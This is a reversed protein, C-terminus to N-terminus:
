ISAANYQAKRHLIPRPPLMPHRQQVLYECGLRQQLNDKHQSGRNNHFRNTRVVIEAPRGCQHRTLRNTRVATRSAHRPPSPGYRNTGTTGAAASILLEKTMLASSAADSRVTPQAPSNHPRQSIHQWRAARGASGSRAIRETSLPKWDQEVARHLRHFVAPTATHRTAETTECRRL